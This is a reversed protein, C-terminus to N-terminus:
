MGQVKTLPYVRLMAKGYVEGEDVFPTKWRHSDYSNNRNDGLVFFKGEPVIVPGFDYNMEEKIYPEEVQHGNRYLVGDRIEITDGSRGILRKIFKEEHSRDDPPYFVVIDGYHYNQPETVKEILLYDNVELTPIMSGSPIYVAEVVYTRVTLSIIVALVISPLYEKLVKLM